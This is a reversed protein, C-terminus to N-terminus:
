IKLIGMFKVAMNTSRISNSNLTSDENNGQKAFCM